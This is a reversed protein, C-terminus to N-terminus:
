NQGNAYLIATEEIVAAAETASPAVNGVMSTGDLLLATTTGSESSMPQLATVPKVTKSEARPKARPAEASKSKTPAPPLTAPEGSVQSDGQITTLNVFESSMEIEIADIKLATARAAQADRKTASSRGARRNADASSAATSRKVRVAEKDATTTQQRDKKGFLSFIGM